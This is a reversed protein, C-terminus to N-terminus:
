SSRLLYFIVTTVVVVVVAGVPVFRRWIFHEIMTEAELNLACRPCGRANQPLSNGCDRCARNSM